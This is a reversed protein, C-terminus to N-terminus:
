IALDIIQIVNEDSKLELYNKVGAEILKIKKKYPLTANREILTVEVLEIVHNYTEMLELKTQDIIDGVGVTEILDPRIQSIGVKFYDAIKKVYELSMSVEGTVFQSVSSASKFGLFVALDKQYIDNQKLLGDLILGAKKDREIEAETRKVPM